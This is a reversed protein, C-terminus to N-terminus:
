FNFSYGINLTSDEIKIDAVNDETFAYGAFLDGGGLSYAIGVGYAPSLWADVM